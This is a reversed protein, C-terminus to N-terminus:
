KPSRETRFRTVLESPWKHMEEVRNETAAM